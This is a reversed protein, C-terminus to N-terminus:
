RKENEKMIISYQTVFDLLIIYYKGHFTSCYIQYKTNYDIAVFEEIIM